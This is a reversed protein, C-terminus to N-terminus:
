PLCSIIRECVRNWTGNKLYNQIANRRMKDLEVSDQHLIRIKEAVLHPDRTKLLIGTEGDIVAESIGYADYGVVVCGYAQAEWLVHPSPDFQSFIFFIESKKYLEILESDSVFGKVQVNSPKEINKLCDDYGVITISFDSLLRACGILVDIGKENYETGIALITKYEKKFGRFVDINKAPGWGIAFIKEATVGYEKALGIKCWNSFTFICKANLFVNRIKVFDREDYISTWGRLKDKQISSNPPDIYNDIIVGFPIRGNDAFVAFMPDWMLILDPKVSLSTIYKEAKESMREIFQPRRFANKFLTQSDIIKFQRKIVMMRTIELASMFLNKWFFVERKDIELRLVDFPLIKQFSRLFYRARKDAYICLVRQGNSSTKSAGKAHQVIDKKLKEL